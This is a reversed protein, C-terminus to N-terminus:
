LLMPLESGTNGQLQVATKGLEFAFPIDRGAGIAKYFGTTFSIASTDPIASSMGIVHPIHEKIAEAQAASYCANLLVCQVSDKFLRFLSALAEAGVLQPKGQEGELYIGEQEGHGSFHIIQPSTDLIAQMLIDPTVAWEQSLILNDREKALKLNLSIKQIEEDLRLRTTNIPNAALFLIKTKGTGSLPPKGASSSNYATSDGAQLEALKQELQQRKQKMRNIESELRFREEARTELIQQEEMLALNKSIQEWKKQAKEIKAKTIFDLPM